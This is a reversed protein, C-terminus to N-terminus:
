QERSSNIINNKLTKSIKKTLVDMKNKKSMNTEKTKKTLDKDNKKKSLLIEKVIKEMEDKRFSDIAEKEQLRIRMKSGRAKKSQKIKPDKGFEIAREVPNDVGM